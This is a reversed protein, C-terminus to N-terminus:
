KFSFHITHLTAFIPIGMATATCKVISKDLLINKKCAIGKDFVLYSHEETHVVQIPKVTHVNSSDCQNLYNTELVHHYFCEVFPEDFLYVYGVLAGSPSITIATLDPHHETQTSLMIPQQLENTPLYEFHWITRTLMSNCYSLITLHHMIHNSEDSAFCNKTVDIVRFNLLALQNMIPKINVNIFQSALPHKNNGVSIITDNHIVLMSHMFQEFVVYLHDGAFQLSHINIIAYSKVHTITCKWEAENYKADIVQYYHLGSDCIVFLRYLQVTSNKQAKRAASVDAICRTVFIQKADAPVNVSANWTSTSMDGVHIVHTDLLVAILFDHAAIDKIRKTLPNMQAFYKMKSHLNFREFMACARKANRPFAISLLSVTSNVLALKHYKKKKKQPAQVYTDMTNCLLENHYMGLKEKNDCISKAYKSFYHNAYLAAYVTSRIINCWKKCVRELVLLNKFQLFSAIIAALEDPWAQAKVPM